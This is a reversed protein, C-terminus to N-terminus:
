TAPTATWTSRGNYVVGGRRAYEELVARAESVLLPAEVSIGRASLQEKWDPARPGEDFGVREADAVPAGCTLREVGSWFLAGLCQVCPESSTVLEYKGSALSFTGLSAQAFAIAVMEAHLLSCGLSVVLNVGPGIVRGTGVEFIVAGFPGGGTEINRRALQIALAMRQEATVRPVDLEFEEFMWDPLTWSLKRAVQM